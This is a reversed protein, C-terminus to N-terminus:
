RFHHEPDPACIMHIRANMPNGDVKALTRVDARLSMHSALFMRARVCCAFRELQTLVGLKDIYTLYM